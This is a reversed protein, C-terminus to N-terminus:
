ITPKVKGETRDSYEMCLEEALYEDSRCHMDSIGEHLLSYLEVTNFVKDNAVGGIVIDFDTVDQERCCMMIFDLWEESYTDFRQVKLKEAKTIGFCM